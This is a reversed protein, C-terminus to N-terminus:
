LQEKPLENFKHWDIKNLEQIDPGKLIVDKLYKEQEENFILSLCIGSHRFRSARCSRHIYSYSDSINTGKGKCCQFGWNVVLYTNPIDIGRQLVDTAVLVRITEKRFESIIADREAATLDGSFGKCEIKGESLKESVFKVEDKRNAFIYIQGTSIVKNLELM